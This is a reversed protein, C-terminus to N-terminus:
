QQGVHFFPSNKDNSSFLKIKITRHFCCKPLQIHQKVSPHCVMASASPLIVSDRQESNFPNSLCQPSTKPNAALPNKNERWMNKGKLERGHHLLSPLFHQIANVTAGWIKQERKGQKQGQAGEQSAFLLSLFTPHRQSYRRMNKCLKHWNITTGHLGVHLTETGAVCLSRQLSIGDWM